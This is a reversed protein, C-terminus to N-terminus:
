GGGFPKGAGGAWGVTYTAARTTFGAMIDPTHMILARAQQFMGATQTGPILQSLGLTIAIVVRTLRSGVGDEISAGPRAEAGQRTPAGRMKLIGYLPTSMVNPAQDIIKGLEVVM